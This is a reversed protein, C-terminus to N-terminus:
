YSGTLTRFIVTVITYSLLIIIIGIVANQINKKGAEASEENGASTIYQYGGIILFLVAVLSAFGLILLIIFQLAGNVGQGNSLDRLGSTSLDPVRAQAFAIMPSLVLIASTVLSIINKALRKM